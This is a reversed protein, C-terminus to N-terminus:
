LNRRMVSVPIQRRREVTGVGVGGGLFAAQCCALLPIEDYLAAAVVPSCRLHEIAQRSFQRRQFDDIHKGERSPFIQLRRRSNSTACAIEIITQSVLLEASAAITLSLFFSASLTAFSMFPSASETSSAESSSIMASSSSAPASGVRSAVFTRVRSPPSEIRSCAGTRVIRVT